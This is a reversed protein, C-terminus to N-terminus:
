NTYPLIDRPDDELGFKSNDRVDKLWATVDSKSVGCMDNKGYFGTYFLWIRAMLAEAAYKTARGSM